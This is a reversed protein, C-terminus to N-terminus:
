RGILFLLWEEKQPMEMINKVQTHNYKDIKLKKKVVLKLNKIEKVFQKLRKNLQKFGKKVGIM